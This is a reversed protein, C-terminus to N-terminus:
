FGLVTLATAVEKLLMGVEDLEPYLEDRAHDAYFIFAAVDSRQLPAIFIGGPLDGGFRNFFSEWNSGRGPPGYYIRGLAVMEWFGDADRLSTGQPLEPELGAQALIELPSSRVDLILVRDFYNRLFRSAVTGVDGIGQSEFLAGAADVISMLKHEAPGPASSEPQPAPEPEPEPPAASEAVPQSAAREASKLPNEDLVVSRPAPNRMKKNTLPVPDDMAGPDDMSSDGVNLSTLHTPSPEDKKKKKLIPFDLTDDLKAGLGLAAGFDKSPIERVPRIVMDAQQRNAGLQPAFMLETKDDPFAQMASPRPGGQGSLEPYLRAIASEVDKESALLPRVPRGVYFAREKLRAYSQPNYLAVQTAGSQGPIDGAHHTPLAIIRLDEVVAADLRAREPDKAPGLTLPDCLPIQLQASLALLLQGTNVYGLDLLTAGLYRGSKQQQALAEYLQERTIIGANVLLLGLTESRGMADNVPNPQRCSDNRDARRKEAALKGIVEVFPTKATDMGKLAKALKGALAMSEKHAAIPSATCKSNAFNAQTLACALIEEAYSQDNSVKTRGAKDMTKHTKKWLARIKAKEVPGAVLTRAYAVRAADVIARRDAEDNVPGAVVYHADGRTHRSLAGHADMPNLIVVARGKPGGEDDLLQDESSGLNVQATLKKTAKNLGPLLAKQTKKASTATEQFLPFGGEESFFDSAHKGLARALPSAGKEASLAPVPKLELAAAIYDDVPVTHKEFVKGFGKLAPGPRNLERRVKIRAQTFLPKFLPAKGTDREQNYGHHNLAAFLTFIRGDVTIEVGDESYVSGSSGWQGWSAPALFLAFLALGVLSWGKIQPASLRKQPM